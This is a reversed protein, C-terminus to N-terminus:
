LAGREIKKQFKRLAALKIAKKRMYDNKTVKGTSLEKDCQALARTAEPTEYGYASWILKSM